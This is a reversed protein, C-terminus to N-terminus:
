NVIGGKLDAQTRTFIGQASLRDLHKSNYRHLFTKFVGEENKRIFHYITSRHKEWQKLFYDIGDYYLIM